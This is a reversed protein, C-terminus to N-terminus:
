HPPRYWSFRGEASDVLELEITGERELREDVKGRFYYVKGAEATFSAAYGMGVLNKNSSQWDICLHHEGPDVPFFFYSKGHNAGVWSGDVGVRTTAAGLYTVNADRKMDQFVYVLAEPQNPSRM